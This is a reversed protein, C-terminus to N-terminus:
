NTSTTSTTSTTSDSSGFGAAVIAVAGIAPAIFPLFNEVDSVPPLQVEDTAEVRATATADQALAASSSIVLASTMLLAYKTM